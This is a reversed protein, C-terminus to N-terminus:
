FADLDDLADEVRRRDAEDLPPPDAEPSGGEASPAGGRLWRRAAWALLLLAALGAVFPGWLVWPDGRYGVIDPGYRAVLTQEIEDRTRGAKAAALIEDELRRAQSSPCSAITRGPCFPSMLEHSLQQQIQEPSPALRM